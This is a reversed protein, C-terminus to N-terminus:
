VVRQKIYCQMVKDYYNQTKTISYKTGGNWLRIAKEIDNNKNYRKQILIFMEISKNVDYRDDYAFKRNPQKLYFQLYENCDDVVIKQIQLIGVCKGDKSVANPNGKSEVEMIANIVPLWNFENSSKTTVQVKSNPTNAYATNNGVYTGVLVKAVILICIFIKRM